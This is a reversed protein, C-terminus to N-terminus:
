NNCIRVAPTLRKRKGLVPPSSQDALENSLMIKDEFSKQRTELDGMRGSINDIKSCVKSIEESIKHQMAQLVATYALDGQLPLNETPIVDGPSWSQQRNPLYVHVILMRLFRPNPM